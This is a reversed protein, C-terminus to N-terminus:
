RPAIRSRLGIQETGQSQTNVYRRCVFMPPSFRIGPLRNLLETCLKKPTTGISSGPMGLHRCAQLADVPHLARTSLV